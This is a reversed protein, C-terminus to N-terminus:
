TLRLTRAVPETHCGPVSQGAEIAKLIKEKDPTLTVVMFEQPIDAENDIKLSVRDSQASLKAKHLEGKIEDIGHELMFAKLREKLRDAAAEAYGGQQSLHKGEAKQAAARNKFEAIIQYYGDIKHGLAATNEDLWATIAKDVSEESVDGGIETLLEYLAKRDEGIGMLSKVKITTQKVISAPLDPLPNKATKTAM